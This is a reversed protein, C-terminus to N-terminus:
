WAGVSVPYFGFVNKFKEFAADILKEREEVEYGTLFASGANHWSESRRYEIKAQDAWTPTVELFLGKEDLSKNKLEDIISSIDLADFRILWTAPMNFKRLIAIQGSVATEPEQDKLDWFDNGRVPNVISIFSNKGESIFSNNQAFTGPALIALLLFLVLFILRKM